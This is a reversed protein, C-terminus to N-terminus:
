LLLDFFPFVEEEGSAMVENIASECEVLLNWINKFRSRVLQVAQEVNVTHPVDMTHRDLFRKAEQLLKRAENREVKICDKLELCRQSLQALKVKSTPSTLTASTKKMNQLEDVIKYCTHMEREIWTVVQFEFM